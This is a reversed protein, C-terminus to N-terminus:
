HMFFWELYALIMFILALATFVNYSDIALKLGYKNSYEVPKFIINRIVFPFLGSYAQNFVYAPKHNIKKM